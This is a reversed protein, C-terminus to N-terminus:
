ADRSREELALVAAKFVEGREEFDRFMDFSACAPSLLVVDGPAAVRQALAVAETMGHVRIVKTTPGLVAELKAQDEGLLIAVRVRGRAASALATFDQGKGRGGAILVVPEHFSELARLTSAVNTGKSDNYYAVGGLERVWEIRHAVGRFSGIGTRLRSPAVGAWLACASAALVNEVNHDGRLFIEEVPAIGIERGDLRWVIWGERLSVGEDLPRRRSFFVVRALTRKAFAAVEADDANLVAWDARTQNLFIRAKAQRYAEFSGHRDVHDPTLNLVAAVRPRFTEITELQFSSVEAVTLGHAPFELAHATLPNGINGGVLLHRAEQALLAGVLATTTTKGNTGTVAIFEAEMVRYALELEGIIPIERRRAAALPSLTLPVGPSLVVLDVEEFVRAPHGGVVLEVGSERLAGVGSGLADLPKTDTGVVRAGSAVLLRCAAVGSRALGVVLVQRGKLWARYAEGRETTMTMGESVGTV